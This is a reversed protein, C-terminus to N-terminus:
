RRPSVRGRIRQDHALASSTAEIRVLMAASPLVSGRCYTSLRSASTGVDQAFRWAPVGSAAVASRIRAAVTDREQQQAVARARRVSEMMLEAVDREDGYDYYDQVSRAVPGWPARRVAAAIRQWDSRLGREMATVVGEHPWTEVPDAPSVDLNRFALDSM